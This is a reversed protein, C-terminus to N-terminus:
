NARGDRKRVFVHVGPSSLREIAVVHTGSLNVHMSAAKIALDQSMDFATEYTKCSCRCRYDSNM